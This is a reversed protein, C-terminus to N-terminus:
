EIEIPVEYIESTEHGARKHVRLVADKSPAESLCFV